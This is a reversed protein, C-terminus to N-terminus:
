SGAQFAMVELVTAVQDLDTQYTWGAITTIIYTEKEDLKNIACFENAIKIGDIGAERNLSSMCRLHTSERLKNTFHLAKQLDQVGNKKRWRSVYKTIQGELYLGCLADQVFDWHQYESAYHEGGVQMKNAQM